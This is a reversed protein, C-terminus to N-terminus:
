VNSVPKFDKGIIQYQDMGVGVVAYGDYFFGAPDYTGSGVAKLGTEIDYYVYGDETYVPILDMDPDLEGTTSSNSSSSSSCSVLAIAAIVAFLIKKM